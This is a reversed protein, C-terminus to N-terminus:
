KDKRIKNARKVRANVKRRIEKKAEEAKRNQEMVVAFFDDIASQNRKRKTQEKDLLRKIREAKLDFVRAM